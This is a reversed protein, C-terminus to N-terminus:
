SRYYYELYMNCIKLFSSVTDNKAQVMQKVQEVRKSFLSDSINNSGLTQYAKESADFNNTLFVLAYIILLGSIVYLLFYALKVGARQEETLPKASIGTEKSLEDSPKVQQRAM